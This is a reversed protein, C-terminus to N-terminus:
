LGKVLRKFTEGREEFNRFQDYSSCGPSLLVSTGPEAIKSALKVAEELTTVLHFPLSAALELEMKAAAAGFAILMNVKQKFCDIWPLYSSGKDKGGALVILPGPLSRVAYMVADVNSAKSDNYYVCGRKEAVWEIRHPPRQFTKLAELFQSLSVGFPKCLCFAAQENQSLSLGEEFLEANPLHQKAQSSVFLSGDKKVCAAIRLKAAIYEEMSSYRDLHNPVINLIAAAELFPTSMTELQFSSLELILIEKENVQSLYSSLPRGVNGLAKAAYGSTQLVHEILLTTTTKGNSGTLAICPNRLRRVAFEIEGIVELGQSLAEQVLPHTPPVGPSLLVWSVTEFSVPKEDSFLELGRELLSIISPEKSLAAFQKDVALVSSGEQLLQDAAARGSIGLGIILIKEM